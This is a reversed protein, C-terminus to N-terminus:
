SAVQSFHAHVILWGTDGKQYISTAFWRRALSGNHTEFEYSLVATNGALVVKPSIIRYSDFLPRGRYTEYVAKVADLGDLRTGLAAHVFTIKPDSMALFPDPNGALWGEMGRRELALIVNETSDSQASVGVSLIVLVCAVMMTKMM